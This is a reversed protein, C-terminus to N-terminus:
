GAEYCHRVPMKDIIAPTAHPLKQVKILLANCSPDKPDLRLYRGFPVSNLRPIKNRALSPRVRVEMITM